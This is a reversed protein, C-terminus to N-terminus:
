KWARIGRHQVNEICIHIRTVSCAFLTKYLRASGLDHTVQGVLVLSHLILVM